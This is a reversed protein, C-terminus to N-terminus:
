SFVPALALFVAAILLASVLQMPNIAPMLMFIGAAAVLGAAISVIVLGAGLAQMASPMKFGGGGGAKSGKDKSQEKLLGKIDLM